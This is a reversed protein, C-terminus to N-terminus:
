CRDRSSSSHRKRKREEPGRGRPKAYQREDPSRSRRGRGGGTGERSRKRKSRPEFSYVCESDSTYSLKRKVSQKRREDVSTEGDQRKGGKISLDHSDQRTRKPTCQDSIDREDRDLGIPKIRKPVLPPSATGSRRPRPTVCVKRACPEFTVYRYTDHQGPSYKEHHSATTSPETTAYSETTTGSVETTIESSEKSTISPETATVSPEKSTISPETTTVSPEKSTISPETTTVSPEKSTISPETTTVSPEKSTISPETTTVSPEKSTISPETTESYTQDGTDSTKEDNNIIFQAMIQLNYIIIHILLVIFFPISNFTTEQTQSTEDCQSTESTPGTTISKHTESSGYTECTDETQSTEYRQSTEESCTEEHPQMRSKPQLEYEDPATPYTESTTGSATIQSSCEDTGETRENKRVREPLQCAIDESKGEERSPIKMKLAKEKRTQEHKRVRDPLQCAIDEPKREEMKMRLQKRKSKPGTARKAPGALKTMERYHNKEDDAMANWTRGAYKAVEQAPRGKFDKQDFLRVYYNIYPNRYYKREVIPDKETKM